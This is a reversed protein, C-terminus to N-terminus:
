CRIDRGRSDEIIGDDDIDASKRVRGQINIILQRAKLLNGDPPCYTFNGNQYNTYGVPTMQLYQRNRFARWRITGPYDFHNYRLLRDSGNIRRDANHDVFIITGDHWDGGCAGGDMSPCLTVIANFMIASHRTFQVSAIIWNLAATAQNRQIMQNLSPVAFGTLLSIIALVALIEVLSLGQQNM